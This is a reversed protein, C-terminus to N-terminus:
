SSQAEAWRAKLYGFIRWFLPSHMTGRVRGPRTADFTQPETYELHHAMEHLFTDFLEDMPRRGTERDHTYIRVLRRKRYYGGLMRSTPRANVDLDFAVDCLHVRDFRARFLPGIASLPPEFARPPILLPEVPREEIVLRGGLSRARRAIDDLDFEAPDILQRGGNPLELWYRESM